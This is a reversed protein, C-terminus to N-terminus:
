DCGSCGNCGGKGSCGEQDKPKPKFARYIRRLAFLVAAAVILAVVISEIDITNM